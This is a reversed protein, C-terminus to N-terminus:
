GTDKEASQPPQLETTSRKTTTWFTTPEIGMLRGMEGKLFLAIPLTM